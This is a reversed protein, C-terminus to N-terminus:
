DKFTMDYYLFMSDKLNSFIRLIMSDVQLGLMALDVM